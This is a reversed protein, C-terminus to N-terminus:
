AFVHVVGTRIMNKSAKSPFFDIFENIQENTMNQSMAFRNLKALQESEFQRPELRNMLELFQLVAANATTIPIRPRRLRLRQGGFVIERCRSKEVNTVIDMVGPVQLSLGILNELWLGAYFGQTERETQIYKKEIVREVNLRSKGFPTETPIYYIGRQFRILEGRAILRSLSQRLNDSSMGKVRISSQFIPENAKFQRTLAKLFEM